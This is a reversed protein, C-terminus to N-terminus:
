LYKDWGGYLEPRFLKLRVITVGDLEQETLEHERRLMAKIYSNSRGGYTILIKEVEKPLAKLDTVSRKTPYRDLAIAVKIAGLKDCLVCDLKLANLVPYYGNKFGFVYLQAKLGEHYSSDTAVHKVVPPTRLYTKLDDALMFNHYHCNGLKTFTIIDLSKDDIDEL